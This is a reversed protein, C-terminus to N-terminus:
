SSSRSATSSFASNASNACCNRCASWRSARRGDGRSPQGHRGRHDPRARQDLGAAPLQESLGVDAHRRLDVRGTRCFCCRPRLRAAQGKRPQYRAGASRGRRRSGGDLRSRPAFERSALRFLRRGGVRRPDSLLAACSRRARLRRDQAQPDASDGSRRRAATRGHRIARRRARDRWPGDDRSCSLRRACRARSHRVLGRRRDVCPGRYAHRGLIFPKPDRYLQRARSPQRCDTHRHRLRRGRLLRCFRSRSTGRTRGRSQAGDGDPHLARRADDGARYLLWRCCSAPRARSHVLVVRAARAYRRQAPSLRILREHAPGRLWATWVFTAGSALVFIM